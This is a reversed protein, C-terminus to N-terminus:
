DPHLGLSAALHTLEDMNMGEGGSTTTTITVYLDTGDAGKGWLKAAAIGRSNSGENPMITLVAYRSGAIGPGNKVNLDKAQSSSSSTAAANDIEEKGGAALALVPYSGVPYVTIEVMRRGLLMSSSYNDVYLASFARLDGTVRVNSSVQAPTITALLDRDSTSAPFPLDYGVAESTATVMEANSRLLDDQSLRRGQAPTGNAYLDPKKAVIYGDKDVSLDLTALALPEANSPVSPSTMGVAAAGVTALGDWPRYRDSHCPDEIDWRDGGGFYKILCGSSIAVASYARFSSIDDKQGGLWAPLRVLNYLSYPETKAWFEQIKSAGAGAINGRMFNEMDASFPNLIMVSSDPKVDGLKLNGATWVLQGLGYDYRQEFAVVRKEEESQSLFNTTLAPVVSLSVALLAISAAIASVAYISFKKNRVNDGGAAITM